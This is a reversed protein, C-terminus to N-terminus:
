VLRVRPPLGLGGRTRLPQAYAITPDEFMKQGMAATPRIGPKQHPAERDGDGTPLVHVHVLLAIGPGLLAPAAVPAAKPRSATVTRPNDWRLEVLVCAFFAFAEVV